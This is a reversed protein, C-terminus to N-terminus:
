SAANACGVPEAVRVVLSIKMSDLWSIMHQRTDETTTQLVESQCFDQKIQAKINKEQDNTLSLGMQVISPLGTKVDYMTISEIQTQTIRVPPLYLTAPSKMSLSQTTLESLNVGASISAKVLTLQRQGQQWLGDHNQVTDSTMDSPLLLKTKYVVPNIVHQAQLMALINDLSFSTTGTTIRSPQVPHTHRESPLLQRQQRVKSGLYLLGSLMVLILIAWLLLSSDRSKQSHNLPLHQNKLSKM